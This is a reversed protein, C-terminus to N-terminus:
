QTHTFIAFNTVFSGESTFSKHGLYRTFFFAVSGTHSKHISFFFLWVFLCAFLALLFVHLERVNEFDVGRMKTKSFFFFAEYKRVTSVMDTRLRPILFRGRKQKLSFYDEYKRTSVM